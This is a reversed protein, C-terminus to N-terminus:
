SSPAEVSSSAEVLSQSVLVVFGAFFALFGILWTSWLSHSILLVLVVLTTAGTAAPVIARPLQRLGRWTAVILVLGFVVGALGLDAWIELFINHPHSALDPFFYVHEVLGKGANPTAFFGHGFIPAELALRAVGDWIEARILFIDESLGPLKPAILFLLQYAFPASVLLMAAGGALATCTLYPRWTAALYALVAIPLGIQITQSEGALSLVWMAAIPVLAGYVGFRQRLVPVALWSLVALIVVARNFTSAGIRDPGGFSNVFTSLPQFSFEAVLIVVGLLWGWGVARLMQDALRRDKLHYFFTFAYLALFFVGAFIFPKLDRATDVPWAVSRLAAITSVVMFGLMAVVLLRPARRWFKVTPVRLHILYITAFLLAPPIVYDLYFGRIVSVWALLFCGFFIFGGMLVTQWPTRPTATDLIM